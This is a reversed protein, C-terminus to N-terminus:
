SPTLEHVGLISYIPGGPVLDSHFFTVKQVDFVISPYHSNLFDSVDPTVKQPYRIRGITIHPSFDREEGPYGLPDLARNLDNVLAKLEAVQGQIGMWLIRPRQRKPFVGTGEVRLSFDIHGGMVENVAERIKPVEEEPTPGIFRLTLHINVSKLWKVVGPKAKVTTHLNTATRKVEGPLEVAFFTRLMRESM